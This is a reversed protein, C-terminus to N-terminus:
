GIIMDPPPMCYWTYMLAACHLNRELPCSHTYEVRPDIWRMKWPVMPVLWCPKKAGRGEESFLLNISYYKDNM